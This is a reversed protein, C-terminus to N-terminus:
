RRAGWTRGYHGSSLYGWAMGALLGVTHATNAISGVLGTFCLVYWILMMQVTTKNLQWGADRDYRGRIWMFGLLAYVVGSMGGFFPSGWLAQGINSLVGFILIQIALYRPGFRNEVFTGLDKFMLLNFVIHPIGFHIFVPTLLRWIQGSRVEPLWGFHGLAATFANQTLGTQWQHFYQSILLPKLSARDGGLQSYIGVAICIIIVSVTLVPMGMINREYGIRATDVVTSRRTREEREEAERRRRAEAAAQRFDIAQPAARFEELLQAARARQDDELVWISFSGDDEDDIQSEIGNLYLHDRFRAALEEGDLKGITRM